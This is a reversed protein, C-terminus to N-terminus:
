DSADAGASTRRKRSPRRRFSMTVAAASAIWWPADGWLQYPTSPAMWGIEADLAEQTFTGSQKVVRGVPDMIASVGSNTSRVFYRRHEIARFKSLALHIWPETTDGFWADNTINVLLSPNGSKVISNVFSPAIDEYCIFVAVDQDAARITEISKGPTFHGSNPSLEYLSPFVDGLPLYEGFALLFQKDYRGQLNGQGDTSLASNFLVYRRADDVDRVLVAGFIAPVGLRAAFARKYMPAAEDERAASMVSTESWVVLDLPGRRQLERTLDVHRRLGEAKDRRKGLLSMNAQVLGIRAKPAAAAARDVQAMRVAGYALALLPVAALALRRPAFPQRELKCRIIEAVLWNPAVLVLGVLIPGGLEAFQALVPVQHITAGYFWPFLLPYLKESAAFAVAFALGAPWGRQEARGYFWGLLAIRGAQYGCLLAMFVICLATPFGSFVRLMELLWYFGAMTMTFGALWGLWLARKPTQGRLALMLPSLAVFAVPWLDIGPFAIFYLFGSLVALAAAVRGRFLPASSSTTM